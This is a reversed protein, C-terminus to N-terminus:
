PEFTGESSKPDTAAAGSIAAIPALLFTASKSRDLTHSIQMQPTGIRQRMAALVSQPDECEMEYIAAYRWMTTGGALTSDLIKFRRAEVFGPVDLVDPLHQQDYWRNFETDTDSFPVTLVLFSYRQMPRRDPNTM